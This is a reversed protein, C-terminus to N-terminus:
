DRRGEDLIHQDAPQNTTALTRIIGSICRLMAATKVTLYASPTRGFRQSGTPIDALALAALCIRCNGNDTVIAVRRFRAFM